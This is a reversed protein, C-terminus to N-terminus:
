SHTVRVSLARRRPGARCDKTTEDRGTALCEGAVTDCVEHFIRGDQDAILKESFVKSARIYAIHVRGTPTYGQGSVSIIRGQEEVQLKLPPKTPTAQHPVSYDGSESLNHPTEDVVCHGDSIGSFM